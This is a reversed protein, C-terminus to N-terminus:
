VDLDMHDPLLDEEREVFDEASVQVNYDASLQEVSDASIEVIADASVQVFPEVSVQNGHITAMHKNMLKSHNWQFCIDCRYKWVKHGSKSRHDLFAKYNLYIKDRTLCNDEFCKVKLDQYESLYSEDYTCRNENLHRELGKRNFYSKSCQPCTSSIPQRPKLTKKYEDCDKLKCRKRQLCSSCKRCAPTECNPCGERCMGRKRGTKQKHSSSPNPIYDPDSSKSKNSPLINSRSDDSQYFSENWDKRLSDDDLPEEKIEEVKIANDRSLQVSPTAETDTISKNPLNKASAGYINNDCNDPYDPVELPGIIEKVANSALNVKNEVEKIKANISSYSKHNDDKLISLINVLLDKNSLVEQKVLNIENLLRPLNVLPAM